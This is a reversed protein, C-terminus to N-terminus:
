YERLVKILKNQSYTEACPAKVLIDLYGENIGPNLHPKINIKALGLYNTKNSGVDGLGKIIINADKINYGDKDYVRITIEFDKEDLGLPIINIMPNVDVTMKKPILCPNLIFSLIVILAASGIVLCVTLRLPLGMIASKNITLLKRKQFDM